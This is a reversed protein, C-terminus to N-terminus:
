WVYWSRTVRWFLTGAETGADRNIAFHMVIYLVNPCALDLTMIRNSVIEPECYSVM